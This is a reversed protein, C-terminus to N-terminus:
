RSFIEIRGNGEDVICLRGWPDFRLQRPFYLKEEGQGLGLFEYQFRGDRGYVVVRHQHRDLVYISSDNPGLALSVPFDVNSGLPITEAVSGDPHFHYITKSLSELAWVTGDAIVFDIFGGQCDTCGFHQEVKLKNNLRLVQGSARDLVYLRGEASAIRDPFVQRGDDVLKHPEIKKARVDILTLSNRGKEVVWLQGNDLRVMDFPVRLQNNANFANLLEGNFNFSVLRNNGSDVAYYRRNGQEFAVAAPMYMADGKKNVYLSMEWKWASGAMLLSAPLLLLMLALFFSGLFPKRIM